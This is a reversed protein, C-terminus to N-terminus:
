EDIRTWEEIKIFTVEGEANTYVLRDSLEIEESTKQLVSSARVIRANIVTGLNNKENVSAKLSRHKEHIIFEPTADEPWNKVIVALDTGKEPVDGGRRPPESWDNYGANVIEMINRNSVKEYLSCGAFLLIFLLLFINTSKM